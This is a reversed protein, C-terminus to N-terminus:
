ALARAAAQLTTYVTAAHGLQAHLRESIGNRAGRALYPLAATLQAPNRPQWRRRQRGPVPVYAGDALQRVQALKGAIDGATLADRMSRGRHRGRPPGTLTTSFRVYASLLVAKLIFLDRTPDPAARPATRTAALDAVRIVPLNLPPGHLLPLGNRLYALAVEVIADHTHPWAVVEVLRQAVLRRWALDTMDYHRFRQAQAPNGPPCTRGLQFYSENVEAAIAGDTHPRLDFLQTGGTATCTANVRPARVRLPTRAGTPPLEWWLQENAGMRQFAQRFLQPDSRWLRALFQFIRGEVLNLQIPGISAGAGLDYTNVAEMLGEAFSIV